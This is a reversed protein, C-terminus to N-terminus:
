CCSSPGRTRARARGTLGNLCSLRDGPKGKGLLGGMCRGGRGRLHHGVTDGDVQHLHSPLGLDLGLEGVGVVVRGEHAVEGGGGTLGRRCAPSQCGKALLERCRPRCCVPGASSAGAASADPRSCSSSSGQECRSETTQVPRVGGRAGGVGWGRAPATVKVMIIMERQIKELNPQPMAARMVGVTSSMVPAPRCPLATRRLACAGPM